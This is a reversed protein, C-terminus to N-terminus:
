NQSPPIFDRPLMEPIAMSDEPPKVVPSPTPPPPSAARLVENTWEIPQYKKVIAQVKAVHQPSKVVDHATINGDLMYSALAGAGTGSSFEIPHLRTASNTHFTQAMTKGAVLLNAFDKNTHARLPLTFPKPYPTFGPPNTSSACRQGDVNANRSPHRDAAYAGIGISDSFRQGSFIDAYTLVFDNGNEGFGISRRTDRIYPVKSLGFPTGFATSLVIHQGVDKKQGNWDVIANKRLHDVWGWAQLEAEALAEIDIGGKWNGRMAQERAAGKPLFLYRYPYDNGLEWNQNSIDGFQAAPFYNSIKEKRQVPGLTIRRYTWVDDFTFPKATSISYPSAGEALLGRTMLSQKYAEVKPRIDSVWRGQALTEDAQPSPSLQLALPYVIAQGCTEQAGQAVPNADDREMGQLFNSGSLVLGEGWETADIVIPTSSRGATAGVLQFTIKEFAPSSQTSYWDSLQESLRGVSIGKQTHQIITVSTVRGKATAVSKVVSNRFVRLRGSSEYRAAVANIEPLLKAPEFCRVSVWCVPPSPFSVRNGNIPGLRAMWEFFTKNTAAEDRSADSLKVKGIGPMEVDHHAFDVAPVGSSTLQGGLWDTPETLCVVRNQPLNDAATIAASFAATTGGLVVVDCSVTQAAPQQKVAATDGDDTEKKQKICAMLSCGTLLSVLALTQGKWHNM